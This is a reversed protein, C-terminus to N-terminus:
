GVKRRNRRRSEPSGAQDVPHATADRMSIADPFATSFDGKAPRLAHKGFRERLPQCQRFANELRELADKFYRLTVVCETAAIIRWEPHLQARDLYDFLALASSFDHVFSSLLDLLSQITRINSRDSEDFAALNFRPPSANIAEVVEPPLTRATDREMHYGEGM